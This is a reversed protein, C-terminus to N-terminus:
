RINCVSRYLMVLGSSLLIGGIIDTFWHVGSVLRGVVMFVVFLSIGFTICYRVMKCKIHSTLQMCATPMVFLTLMTTSSPYSAELVDNILIPRFNIATIEFLFFLAIVLIYFGGLVLISFDVKFLSKRQMWQKVGLLAFGAAFAIPVLGLWDTIVYLPMCVGVQDRVLQNISAFGVSSGSPGMLQVDFTQVMITWVAFATLLFVARYLNKDKRM